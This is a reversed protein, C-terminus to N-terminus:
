YVRARAEIAAVEDRLARAEEQLEAARERIRDRIPGRTGVPAARLEDFLGELDRAREALADARRSVEAAEQALAASRSGSPAPGPDGSPACAVLVLFLM